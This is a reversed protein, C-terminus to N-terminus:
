ARRLAMRSAMCGVMRTTSTVRHGIRACHLGIPNPLEAVPEIVVHRHRVIRLDLLCGRSALFRWRIPALWNEVAPFDRRCLDSAKPWSLSGAFRGHGRRACGRARWRA